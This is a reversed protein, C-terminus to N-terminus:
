CTHGNSHWGCINRHDVQCEFDPDLVELVIERVEETDEPTLRMTRRVKASYTQDVNYDAIQTM